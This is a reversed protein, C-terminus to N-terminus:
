RIRTSGSLGKGSRPAHALLPRRRETIGALDAATGVAPEFRSSCFANPEVYLILLFLDVGRQVDSTTGSRPRARVRPRVPSPHGHLGMGVRSRSGHRFDELM